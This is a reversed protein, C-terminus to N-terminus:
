VAGTHIVAVEDGDTHMVHVACALCPDFSHVIRLVEVPQNEDTVTTGILAQELPGKVGNHDMPSANWCTPTIIQYNSIKGDEGIDAWHGLAGRPAETLGEGSGVGQNYAESYAPSDDIADLWRRMANCVILAENARALHRDMVSVGGNYAGNIIMRALPGVEYPKDFLRPAKLWTYADQKPYEPETVGQAPSLGAPESADAYWSHAVGEAIDASSFADSVRSDGKNLMGGDFLVGGDEEQFVGYALLNEPGAGIHRYDSYVRDIQYVDSIYMNEIFDRMYLLHAKFDAIKQPTIGATLGGPAYTAAHPLKAGFIAAMEHARRRATLAETFHNMVSTLGPRMDANWSIKWPSTAPGAVFDVVSLVYFHLIHSQIFNAGLVLNRLLRGNSTPVWDTVNELAMVSAQGHSIPCVGCIRQTILPADEPVRGKLLNEFGRFLTGSVKADMVTGNEIEVEVKMHGEIRTIPDIIKITAM